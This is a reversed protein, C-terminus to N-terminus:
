NGMDQSPMKLGVYDLFYDLILGRERERERERERKRKQVTHFM